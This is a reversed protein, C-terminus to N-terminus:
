SGTAPSHIKGKVWPTHTCAQRSTPFQGGGLEESLPATLNQLLPCGGEWGHQSSLVVEWSSREQACRTKQPTHREEACRTASEGGHKKVSPSNAIFLITKVAGGFQPNKNANFQRWRGDTLM